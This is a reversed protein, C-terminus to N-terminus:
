QTVTPLVFAVNAGTCDGIGVAGDWAAWPGGVLGGVQGFVGYGQSNPNAIYFANRNIKWNRIIEDQSQRKITYSLSGSINYGATSPPKITKSTEALLFRPGSSGRKWLESGKGM